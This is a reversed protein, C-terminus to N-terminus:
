ENIRNVKCIPFWEVVGSVKQTWRKKVAELLPFYYFLAVSLFPCQCIVMYSLNLVTECDNFALECIISKSANWQEFYTYKGWCKGWKFSQSFCLALGNSENMMLMLNPITTQSISPPPHSFQSVLHRQNFGRAMFVLYDDKNYVCGTSPQPSPKLQDENLNQCVFMLVHIVSESLRCHSSCVFEEYIQMVPILQCSQWMAIVAEVTVKKRSWVPTVTMVSSVMEHIQKMM